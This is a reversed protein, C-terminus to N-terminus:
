LAGRLRSGAEMALLGIGFVAAGAGVVAGGAVAVPVAAAKAVFRVPATPGFGRHGTHVFTLPACLLKNHSGHYSQLCCWHFEHCCRSCTMHDCGGSKEICYSCKPCRKAVRGAKWLSFQVSLPTMSSTVRCTPLAHWPKGCTVCSAGGCGKCDLRRGRQTLAAREAVCECGPLPCFVMTSDLATLFKRYKATTQAGCLAHVDAATFTYACRTCPCALAASSVRGESVLTRIHTGVCGRCFAGHEIAHARAGAGAGPCRYLASHGQSRGRSCLAECCIDCSEAPAAAEWYAASAAPLLPPPTPARRPPAPPPAADCLVFRAGGNGHRRLVLSRADLGARGFLVRHRSAGLGLLRGKVFPALVVGTGLEAVEIRQGVLDAPPVAEAQRERRARQGPPEGRPGDAFWTARRRLRPGLYLEEDSDTTDLSDRLM